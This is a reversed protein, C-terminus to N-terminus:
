ECAIQVFKINGINLLIVIFIIESILNKNKNTPLNIVFSNSINFFEINKYYNGM